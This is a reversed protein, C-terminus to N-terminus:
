RTDEKWKNCGHLKHTAVEGRDIQFLCEGWESYESYRKWGECSQCLREKEIVFAM